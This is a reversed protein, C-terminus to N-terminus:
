SCISGVSPGDASIVGKVLVMDPLAKGAAHMAELETITTGKTWMREIKVMERKTRQISQAAFAM